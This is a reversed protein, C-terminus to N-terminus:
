FMCKKGRKIIAMGQERQSCVKSADQEKHIGYVMHCVCVRKTGMRMKQLM